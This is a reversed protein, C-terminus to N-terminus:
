YGVSKRKRHVKRRRTKGGKAKEKEIAAPTFLRAKSKVTGRLERRFRELEKERQTKMVEHINGGKM